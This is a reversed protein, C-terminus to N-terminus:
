ATVRQARAMERLRKILPPTVREAEFGDAIYDAITRNVSRTVQRLCDAERLGAARQVAIEFKPHLRSLDYDDILFDYVNFVPTNEVILYIRTSRIAPQGEHEVTFRPPEGRLVTTPKNLNIMLLRRKFPGCDVTQYNM